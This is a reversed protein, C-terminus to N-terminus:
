KNVEYNNKKCVYRVVLSIEGNDETIQEVSQLYLTSKGFTPSGSMHLFVKEELTQEKVPKEKFEKIM